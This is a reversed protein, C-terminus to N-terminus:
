ILDVLDQVISCDELADADVVKSFTDDVSAIFSIMGISDWSDIDALSTTASFDETEFIEVLLDFIQDNM